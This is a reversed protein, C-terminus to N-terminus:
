DRLDPPLKEVAPPAYQQLLAEWHRRLSPPGRNYRTRARYFFSRLTDATKVYVSGKTPDPVTYDRYVLLGPWDAQRRSPPRVLNKCAGVATVGQTRMCKTVRLWVALLVDDNQKRPRGARNPNRANLRAEEEAQLRAKRHERWHREFHSPRNEIYEDVAAVVQELGFRRILRVTLITLDDGLGEKLGSEVRTWYADWEAKAQYYEPTDDPDEATM